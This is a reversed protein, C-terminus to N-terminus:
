TFWHRQESKRQEVLRDLPLLRIIAQVGRQHELPLVHRREQSEDVPELGCTSGIVKLPAIPM